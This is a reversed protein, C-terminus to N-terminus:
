PQTSRRAFPVDASPVITSPVVSRRLERAVRFGISAAGRWWYNARFGPRCRAPPDQFSGGRIVPALCDPDLRQPDRRPAHHYFDPVFCDLTWEWVNGLLDHVGRRDAPASAVPAPEAHAEGGCVARGAEFHIGWPWTADSGARAAYEWRAETPLTYRAGTKASLWDAYARAGRWSVGIVPRQARDPRAHFRGADARVGTADLDVYAVGDDDAERGVDTLFRAYEANTVETRGIAFATLAVPHPVELPHFGPATPRSGMEFQGAAIPVMIPGHGSGDRFPDRFPETPAAPATAPGLLLGFALLAHLM